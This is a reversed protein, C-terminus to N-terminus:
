TARTQQAMEASAPRLPSALELICHTYPFFLTDHRLFSRVDKFSHRALAEYHERTRVNGGRDLSMLLRPFLNQGPELCPDITIASGGPRLREAAISFLDAPQGDTLHHLLGIALVVDFQAGAMECALTFDGAVLKGNPMPWRRGYESYSANNDIGVYHVGQLRRAIRATGYGLDLISAGRAPRIHDQLLVRLTRDVGSVTQMADYIRPHRFLKWFGHGREM